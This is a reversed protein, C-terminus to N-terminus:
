VETTRPTEEDTETETSIKYGEERKLSSYKRNGERYPCSGHNRCSKDIKKSGSYERKQTRSM